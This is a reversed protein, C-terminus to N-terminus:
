HLLTCCAKRCGPAVAYCTVIQYFLPVGGSVRAWGNTGLRSQSGLSMGTGGALFFMYDVRM